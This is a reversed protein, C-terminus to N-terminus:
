PKPIDGYSVEVIKQTKEVLQWAVKPDIFDENIDLVRKPGLSCEQLFRVLFESCVGRNENSDLYKQLGPILFGLYSIGDYSKGLNGELWGYAFNENIVKIPATRILVRKKTFNQLPEKHYGKKTAHYVTENNMIIGVHSCDWKIFYMIIRSILDTHIERSAFAKFTM